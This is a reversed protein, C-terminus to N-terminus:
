SDGAPTRGAAIAASGFRARVVDMARSLQRDRETEPASGEGTFLALQEAGTASLSTLAVSLLRAPVRRKRRLRRLLEKAIALIARDSEIPTEVTRSASRNRFDHDRIRVTVTRALLGDGRLDAAARAALQQLERELETDGSIDRPFTEDRSISKAQERPSVSSDDIGRVRDYLWRGERDGLLRILSGLDRGLADPVTALGAEELRAALKPGVLPLEALRFQRMFLEEDGAPVVLVGTADSGPKPKAREAALKAVLKASGGGITVWLGTASRVDDRIRYATDELPESHYLGETGTMDLYWEDISAGEVVPAFRELVRHIEGSKQSCARRPVPVITAQPCLRIAQAMPMGSRVGFARAEYSASCVVGRQQASGGVILLPTKGAGQPDAMRAVAVFFADADVLLIRREALDSDTM